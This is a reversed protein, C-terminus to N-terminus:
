LDGGKRRPIPIKFYSCLINPDLDISSKPWTPWLFSFFGLHKRYNCPPLQLNAFQFNYLLKKKKFRLTVWAQTQWFPTREAKLVGLGDNAPSNWLVCSPVHELCLQKWRNNFILDQRFFSFTLFDYIRWVVVEAPSHVVIRKMKCFTTVKSPSSWASFCVMRVCEFPSTSVGM